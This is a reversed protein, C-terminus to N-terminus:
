GGERRDLTQEVERFGASSYRAALGRAPGQKEHAVSM